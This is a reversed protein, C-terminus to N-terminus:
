RYSHTSSIAFSFIFMVVAFTCILLPIAFVSLIAKGWSFQNVGKVAMVHLILGYISLPLALCLGIVSYGLVTSLLGLPSLYSAFAYTLQGYTGIGGLLKAVVQTLAVNLMLGLVALIPVLPIMCIYFMWLSGPFSIAGVGRASSYTSPFSALRPIQVLLALGIEILASVATWTYARRNSATPDTLIAQFTFPSPQTLVRM